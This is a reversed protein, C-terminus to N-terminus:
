DSSIDIIFIKSNTRFRKKLELKLSKLPVWNYYRMMKILLLIIAFIIM